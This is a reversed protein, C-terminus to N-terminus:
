KNKYDQLEKSQKKIEQKRGKGSKLVKLLHEHENLLSSKKMKIAMSKKRPAFDSDEERENDIDHHPNPHSM